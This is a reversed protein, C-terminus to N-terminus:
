KLGVSHLKNRNAFMVTTNEHFLRMSSDFPPKDIVKVKSNDFFAHVSLDNVIMICLDNPLVVINVTDIEVDDEVRVSPATNKTLDFHLIFRDYRGDKEAILVCFGSRHGSSYEADIIRYSDLEPVHINHCSGSKYPIAIWCKGMIDQTIVGRFMRYAPEFINCVVQSHHVIKVGQAVNGFASCVNESLVGNYITYVRGDFEMMSDAAISGVTDGTAPVDFCGFKKTGSLETHVFYVDNGPMQFAVVPHTGQVECLEVHAKSNFDFIKKTNAYVEGDVVAYRISGVLKIRRITSTYDQLYKVEFKDTGSILIAKPVAIIGIQDALPPISREKDLFVKKFWELHRKPIVSWDQTNAPLRVDPHFVSVNDDMMQMWQKPKYNPHRGKFPHIGIYLQFSVVAWSFWDTLETFKGKPSIRDRVSEMLATPPFGPTKYSDVDIHYPTKFDRSVLFNMENYDVVLFGESHIQALTKQMAKVLDAIDQPGIGNKDRFSKVFLKCLFEVDDIYPMTFGVPQGGNDLLVEKPSLVNPLTIRSLEQIKGPSIMKKPDHYIKYGVGDKCYVTGEGGSGKYHNKTLNVQGKGKVTVKM